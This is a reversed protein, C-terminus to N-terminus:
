RSRRGLSRAMAVLRVGARSRELRRFADDGFVYSAIFAATFLSIYAVLQQV